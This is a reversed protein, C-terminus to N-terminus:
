LNYKTLEINHQIQINVKLNIEGVRRSLTNRLQYLEWKVFYTPLYNFYSGGNTYITAGVFHIVYLLGVKSSRELDSNWELDADHVM